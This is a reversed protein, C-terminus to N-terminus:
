SSLHRLWPTITRVRDDDSWLVGIGLWELMKLDQECPREPILVALHPEKTGFHNFWYSYLQGVAMRIHPSEVSSKVEILLDDNSKNYKEIIVDFLASSNAGETLKYMSLKERIWNTLRNHDRRNRGSRAEQLIQIDEEDKLPLSRGRVPKNKLLKKL